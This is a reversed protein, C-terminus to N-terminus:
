CRCRPLHCKRCYGMENWIDLDSDVQSRLFEETKNIDEIMSPLLTRSNYTLSDAAEKFLRIIADKIQIMKLEEEIIPDYEPHVDSM